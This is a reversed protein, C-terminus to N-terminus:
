ASDITSQTREIQVDRKLSSADVEEDTVDRGELQAQRFLTGIEQIKAGYQLLLKLLILANTSNSM